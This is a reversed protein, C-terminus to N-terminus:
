GYAEHTHFHCLGHLLRDGHNFLTMNTDTWIRNGISGVQYRTRQLIVDRPHISRRVFALNHFIM